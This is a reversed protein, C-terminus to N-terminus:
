DLFFFLSSSVTQFLIEGAIFYIGTHWMVISHFPISQFAYIQSSSLAFMLLM